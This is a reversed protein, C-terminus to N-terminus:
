SIHAARTAVRFHRLRWLAITALVLGAAGFVWFTLSVGYNEALFGAGLSAMASAATAVSDNIMLTKALSDTDISSQFISLSRVDFIGTGVGAIIQITIAWGAQPALAMCMTAFCFLPVSGWTWLPRRFWGLKAMVITVVLIGASLSGQLLGVTRATGHFVQTVYPVVLVRIPTDSVIVATTLLTLNGLVPHHVLTDFGNSLSQWYSQERERQRYPIRVRSTQRILVLFVASILFTGSDILLTDVVGFWAVFLGGIIPGILFMAETTGQMWANVHDRFNERVIEKLFAGRTPVYPTGIIGVLLVVGYIQWMRFSHSWVLVAPLALIVSRTVDCWILLNRRDIQGVLPSLFMRAGATAFTYMFVMSGLAVASGTDKYIMWSITLLYFSGGFKNVLHSAWLLRFKREM